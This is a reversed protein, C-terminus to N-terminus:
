IMIRGAIFQFHSDNHRGIFIHAGLYIFSPTSITFGILDELRQHRNHSMDGAYIPSKAKNCFQISCIAHDNLLKAIAPM